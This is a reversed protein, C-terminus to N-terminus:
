TLLSSRGGANIFFTDDGDFAKLAIAASWNRWPAVKFAKYQGQRQGSQLKRLETADFLIEYTQIKGNEVRFFSGIKVTGVPPPLECEYLLAAHEGQVVLDVARARKTMAAFQVLAPRFAEASAYSATPGAIKLDDALFACAENVWAAFYSEVIRRTEDQTSMDGERKSGAVAACEAIRQAESRGFSYHTM